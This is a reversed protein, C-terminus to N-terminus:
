QKDGTLEYVQGGFRQSLQLLTDNFGILNQYQDARITGIETFHVWSGVPQRFAGRDICNPGLCDGWKDGSYRFISNYMPHAETMHGDKDFWSPESPNTVRGDSAAPPLGIVDSHFQRQFRKGYDYGETVSDPKPLPSEDGYSKFQFKLSPTNMYTHLNYDLGGAYDAYSGSSGSSTQNSSTSGANRDKVQALDANPNQNGSGYGAKDLANQVDNGNDALASASFFGAIALAAAFLVFPKKSKQTFM